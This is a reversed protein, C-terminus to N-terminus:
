TPNADTLKVALGGGGGQGRGRGGEEKRRGEEEERTGPRSGEKRKAKRM